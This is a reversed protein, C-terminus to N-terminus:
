GEADRGDDHTNEHSQEEDERVDVGVDEPEVLEPVQGHEGRLPDGRADHEEDAEEAHEQRHPRAQLDGVARSRDVRLEVRLEVAVLLGDEDSIGRMQFAVKSKWSKAM